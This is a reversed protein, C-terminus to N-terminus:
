GERMKQGYPDYPTGPLRALAHMEGAVKVAFGSLATKEHMCEADIYGFCLNKGTRFGPGGSTTRGVWRNNYYIPEDHLLLPRSDPTEFLVLYRDM